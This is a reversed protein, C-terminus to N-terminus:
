QLLVPQLDLVPLAVWILLTLFQLSLLLLSYLQSFGVLSHKHVDLLLINEGVETVSNVADSLVVFREVIVYYGLQGLVKM